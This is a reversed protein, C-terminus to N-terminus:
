MKEKQQDIWNEKRIVSKIKRLDRKTTVKFDTKM